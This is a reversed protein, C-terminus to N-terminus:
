KKTNQLQHQYLENLDPPVLQVIDRLERFSAGATNAQLLEQTVLVVGLFTGKAKDLIETRLAPHLELDESM